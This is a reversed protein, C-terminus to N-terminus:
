LQRDDSGGDKKDVGDKGEGQLEAQNGGLEVTIAIRYLKKDICFLREKPIKSANRCLKMRVSEYFSSFVGQCDVDEDFSSFVGQWDVDEL